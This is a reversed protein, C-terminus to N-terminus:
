TKVDKYYLDFYNELFNHGETATVEFWRKKTLDPGYKRDYENCAAFYVKCDGFHTLLLGRMLMAEPSVDKALTPQRKM